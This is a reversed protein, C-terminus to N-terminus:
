RSLFFLISQNSVVEGRDEAELSLALPVKGVVKSTLRLFRRSPNVQIKM